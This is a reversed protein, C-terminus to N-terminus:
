RCSPAPSPAPLPLPSSRLSLLMSSRLSSLFLMGGRKMLFLRKARRKAGRAYWEGSNSVVKRSTAESRAEGLEVKVLVHVAPVLCDQDVGIQNVHTNSSQSQAPPHVRLPHHRPHSLSVVKLRVGGRRHNVFIASPVTQPPLGIDIPAVFENVPSRVFALLMFQGTRNFHLSSRISSLFLMGGRKMLFYSKAQRKSGRVYWECGNSVVKRSTAESRKAESRKAESGRRAGRGARLLICCHVSSSTSVSISGSSSPPPPFTNSPSPLNMWPIILKHVFQKM